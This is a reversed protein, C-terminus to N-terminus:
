NKPYKTKVALCDNIYKQIQADDGKVIGDLYEEIPPYEAKRKDTYPLELPEDPNTLQKINWEVLEDLDQETDNAVVCNFTHEVEDITTIVKYFKDEVKEKTYNM